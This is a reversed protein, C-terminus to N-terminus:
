KHRAAVSNVLQAIAQRIESQEQTLTEVKGQLKAVEAATPQSSPGLGLITMCLMVIDGPIPIEAREYKSVISQSKGILAGFQDQNVHKRRRAEKVVAAAQKEFTTSRQLLPEGLPSGFILRSM